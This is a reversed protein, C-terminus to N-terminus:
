VNYLIYPKNRFSVFQVLSASQLNSRENKPMGKDCLFGTWGSACAGDCGGTVHNCTNSDGCHGSCIGRCEVGYRGVTCEKM